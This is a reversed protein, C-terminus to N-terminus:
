LALPPFLLLEVPAIVSEDNGGEDKMRAKTQCRRADLAVM